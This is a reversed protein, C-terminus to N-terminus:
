AEPAAFPIQFDFGHSNSKTKLALLFCHEPLREPVPKWLMQKSTTALGDIYLDFIPIGM